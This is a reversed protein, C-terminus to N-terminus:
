TFPIETTTSPYLALVKAIAARRSRTPLADFHSDAMEIRDALRQFGCDQPLYRHKSM